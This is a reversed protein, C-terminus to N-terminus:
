RPEKSIIKKGIVDIFPTILLRGGGVGPTYSGHGPPHNFRSWPIYLGHGPIYLRRGGYFIYTIEYSTNRRTLASGFHSQGFFYRSVSICL